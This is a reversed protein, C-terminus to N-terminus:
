TVGCSSRVPRGVVSKGTNPSVPLWTQGAATRPDSPRGYQDYHNLNRRTNPEYGHPAPYGGDYRPDHPPPGGYDDYYGRNGHYDGYGGYDSRRGDSGRMNDSANTAPRSPTRARDDANIALDNLEQTPTKSRITSESVADTLSFM